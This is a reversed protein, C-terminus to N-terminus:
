GAPERDAPGGGHGLVAAVVAVALGREERESVPEARVAATHVVRAAPGSPPDPAVPPAAGGRRRPVSRDASGGPGVSVTSAVPPALAVTVSGSRARSLGAWRSATARVSPGSRTRAPAPLPFVRTM